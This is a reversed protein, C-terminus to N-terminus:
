DHRWYTEVENKVFNFFKRASDEIADISRDEWDDGRIEKLAEDIASESGLLAGAIEMWVGKKEPINKWKSASMLVAIDYIAVHIFARTALLRGNIRSNETAIKIIQEGAQRVFNELVEVTLETAILRNSLSELTDRDSIPM